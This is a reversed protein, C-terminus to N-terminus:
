ARSLGRMLNRAVGILETPKTVLSLSHCSHRYQDLLQVRDTDALGAMHNYAWSGAIFVATSIVGELDNIRKITEDCDNTRNWDGDSVTFLLKTKRKSSELIREAELLGEIPNTNGGKFVSRYKATTRDSNSYLLETDDSFAYVTVRGDIEELARKIAWVSQNAEHISGGMSGSNDLLIVAEIDFNDNGEHWRDFVTNLENVDMNMARQVNLKGTPNHRLWAPDNDLMLQELERGFASSASRYEGSVEYQEYTAQRVGSGDHEVERIASRIQRAEAKAQPSRMITEISQRVLEAFEDNPSDAEPMSNTNSQTHGDGTGMSPSSENGSKNDPKDVGQPVSDSKTDTNKARQMQAGQKAGSENRGSKLPARDGCLGHGAMPKGGNAKGEGSNSGEGEDSGEGEGQEGEGNQNQNGKSTDTLNLLDSYAKIVELARKPESPVNLLRYEDVLDAVRQALGSGFMGAFLDASMQRIAIPLFRRGRILPYALAGTDQELIYSLCAKTLAERTSPFRSVMLTEIRQDELANFAKVYGNKIVNKVLDSGARPTWLIHCVEHYNIGNLSLITSDTIDNLVSTNFYIAKGDSWAPAKSGNEMDAFNGHTVQISSNTLVSDAIQYVGTIADFKKAKNNREIM